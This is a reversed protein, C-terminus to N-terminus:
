EASTKHYKPIGNKLDMKGETAGSLDVKTVGAYAIKSLDFNGRKGQNWLGLTTM